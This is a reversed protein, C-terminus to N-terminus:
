FREHKVQCDYGIVQIDLEGINYYDLKDRQERTLNAYSRIDYHGGPEIIPEHMKDYRAAVVLVTKNGEKFAIRIHRNYIGTIVRDRSKNKHRITVHVRNEQYNYVPHHQTAGVWDPRSVSEKKPAPKRPAPKRAPAADHEVVCDYSSFVAQLSSPDKGKLKKRLAPNLSVTYRVKCSKGPMLDLRSRARVRTEFSVVSKFGDMLDVTMVKDYIDIVKRNTSNNKHEVRVVYQQKEEDFYSEADRTELWGPKNMDALLLPSAAAQPLACPIPGLLLAIACFRIFRSIM